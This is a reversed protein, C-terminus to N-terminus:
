KALNIVAASGDERAFGLMDGEQSFALSAVPSAAPPAISLDAQDELRFMQVSGDQYGAAILDQKPHCAVRTCLSDTQPPMELPPKGMPGDKSFFPWCVVPPAGSTALYRGKQTWAMSRTKTPYGAMRMNAKDAVRWGHLAMEQMATVIFKGEPSWSVATHSGKWELLTRAGTPTILWWLSVGNYHSAALRKGKPDLALGTVASDHSWRHKEQGAADFLIAQKGAAAIVGGDPLALVQEIWKKISPTFPQVAGTDSVAYIIGDEAGVFLGSDGSRCDASLTGSPIKCIQKDSAYVSGDACMFFISQAAPLAAVPTDPLQFVTGRSQVLLTM